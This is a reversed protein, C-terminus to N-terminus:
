KRGEKKYSLMLAAVACVFSAASFIIGSIGKLLFSASVFAATLAVFIVSSKKM